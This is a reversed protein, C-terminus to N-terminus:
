FLYIIFEICVYPYQITTCTQFHSTGDPMYAYLRFSPVHQRFITMTQLQVCNSYPLTITPYITPVIQILTCKSFPQIRSIPMTQYRAHVHLRFIAGERLPNEILSPPILIIQSNFQIPSTLHCSPSLGNLERCSKIACLNARRASSRSTGPELRM